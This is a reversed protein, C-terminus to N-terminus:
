IINMSDDVDDSFYEKRLHHADKINMKGANILRLERRHLADNFLEIERDTEPIVPLVKIPTTNSFDLSVFSFFAEHSKVEEQTKINGPSTKEFREFVKLGDDASENYRINPAAEGKGSYVGDTVSVILNTKQDSANRSIKWTYKLDLMIQEIKWNLM